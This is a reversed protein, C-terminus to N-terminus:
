GKILGCEKFMKYLKSSKLYKTNMPEGFSCYIEFIKKMEDEINLLFQDSEENQSESKPELFNGVFLHKDIIRSVMAEKTVFSM